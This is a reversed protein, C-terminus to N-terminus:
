QEEEDYTFIDQAFDILDEFIRQQNDLEEKTMADGGILNGSWVIALNKADMKLLPMNTLNIFHKLMDKLTFYNCDPLEYVFQHFQAKRNQPDSLMSAQLFNDRQELTLLPDPLQSFFRKLLSGILYIYDDNVENPNPPDLLEFNTPDQDIRRALDDLVTKNPSMRYVGQTQSGYKEINEICRLVFLPVAEDNLQLNELPLGFLGHRVSSAISANENFDEAPVTLTSSSFTREEGIPRPGNLGTSTSPSPEVSKQLAPSGPDLSSYQVPKDLEDLNIMPAIVGAPLITPLPKNSEVTANSVNRLKSPQHVANAPSKNFATKGTPIPSTGYLPHRVFEVPKFSEKSMATSGKINLYLAKEVDVSCAIKRMSDQGNIPSITNGIGILLSETYISYKEIQVELANDLEVILDKFSKSIKPRHVDVLQNKLRQSGHAKKQYDMEADKIKSKLVDQQESVTKRGGLTIKSKDRDLSVLKEMDSCLNNYKNRAKKAQAIADQVEREIRIGKEKLEKRLVTFHQVISSLESSITELGKIYSERVAFIKNEYKIVDVMCSPITGKTVFLSATISSQCHGAARQTEKNFRSENHAKRNLFLMFEDCTKLSHKLRQSLIEFASDSKLMTLM